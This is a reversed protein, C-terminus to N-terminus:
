SKKKTTSKNSSKKTTAKDGKKEALPKEVQLVPKIAMSYRHKM